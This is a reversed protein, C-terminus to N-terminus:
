LLSTHHNHQWVSLDHFVFIGSTSLHMYQQMHHDSYTNHSPCDFIDEIPDHLCRHLPAGYPFRLHGFLNSIGIPPEVFNELYIAIATRWNGDLLFLTHHSCLRLDDVKNTIKSSM